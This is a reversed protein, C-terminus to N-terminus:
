VQSNATANGSDRGRAASCRSMPMRVAGKLSITWTVFGETFRLAVRTVTTVRQPRWPAPRTGRDSQRGSLRSM